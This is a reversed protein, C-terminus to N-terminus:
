KDGSGYLWESVLGLLLQLRSLQLVPVRTEMALKAGTFDATYLDYDYNCIKITGNCSFSM